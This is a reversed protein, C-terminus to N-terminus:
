LYPTILRTYVKGLIEGATKPAIKGPLGPALIAKINHKRCADFDTGGQGSAIDVVVAENNIQEIIEKTLIQDPITNFIIQFESIYDQLNNIHGVKATMEEARALHATRRAAVTVESGMNILLRALSIGCRGLGLVLSKSGHITVKSLEIARLVAGEATPVSNYIAIEDLDITEILKGDKNKIYDDLESNSKGTLVLPLPYISETEQYFNLKRTTYSAPIDGNDNLGVVPLIIAKFDIDETDLSYLLKGDIQYGIRDFGIAYVEFGQAQLYNILYIDREDGGMVAVRSTEMSHM